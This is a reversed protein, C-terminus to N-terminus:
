FKKTWLPTIFFALATFTVALGFLRAKLQDSM